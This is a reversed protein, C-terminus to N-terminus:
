AGFAYLGLVLLVCLAAGLCLLGAGVLRRRRRTRAMRAACSPVPRRSSAAPRLAPPRGVSALYKDAERELQGPQMHAFEPRVILLAREFYRSGTDKVEIIQRNVGRLM